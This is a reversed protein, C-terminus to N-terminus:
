KYTEEEEEDVFYKDFPIVLNYQNNEKIRFNKPIIQKQEINARRGLYAQVHCNNSIKSSYCIGSKSFINQIFYYHDDNYAGGDTM